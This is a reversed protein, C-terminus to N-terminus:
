SNIAQATCQITISFLCLPSPNEFLLAVTKQAPAIKNFIITPNIVTTGLISIKHSENIKWSDSSTTTVYSVDGSNPKLNKYPDVSINLYYQAAEQELKLACTVKYYKGSALLPDLSVAAKEGGGITIPQLDIAMASSAFGVIFLSLIIIFYHRM